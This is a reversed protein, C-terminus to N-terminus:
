VLHLKEIGARDSIVCGLTPVIKGANLFEACFIVFDSSLCSSFVSSFMLKTWKVSNFISKTVCM